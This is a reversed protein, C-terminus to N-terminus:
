DHPRLLFGALQAAAHGVRRERGHSARQVSDLQLGKCPLLVHWQGQGLCKFEYGYEVPGTVRRHVGLQDGYLEYATVTGTAAGWSVTYTGDNSGGPVTVSAPQGPAITVVIPNSGALPASCALGNCARVRYFYTGSPKSIPTSLAAGSYVGGEDTFNSNTAEYLQYATLTGSAATWAITYNGSTNSAPVSIGGPASPPVTVVVPNAGERYSTCASGSCSRVRYYFAGNGHGSISASTAVGSFVRTQSAFTASTSEWLEYTTVSGSGASWSITYSGSLSASPVSISAPPTAGGLSEEVKMRNGAPDLTYNTVTGDPRTVVRLRGLADYEYTTDAAPSPTSVLTAASAVLVLIAGRIIRM